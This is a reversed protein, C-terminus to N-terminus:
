RCILSHLSINKAGVYPIRWGTEIIVVQVKDHRATRSNWFMGHKSFAIVRNMGYRVSIRDSIIITYTVRQYNLMPFDCNRYSPLTVIEIALKLKSMGLPDNEPPSTTHSSHFGQCSAFAGRLRGSVHRKTFLSEGIKSSQLRCFFQCDDVITINFYQYPSTIVM